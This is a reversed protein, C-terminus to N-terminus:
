GAPPVILAALRVGSLPGSITAREFRWVMVSHDAWAAAFGIGIARAFPEQNQVGSSSFNRSKLLWSIHVLM